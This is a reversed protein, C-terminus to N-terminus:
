RDSLRLSWLSGRALNVVWRQLLYILYSCAYHRKIFTYLVLPTLSQLSSRSILLCLYIKWVFSKASLICKINPFVYRHSLVNEIILCTLDLFLFWIASLVSSSLTSSAVVVPVGSISIQLLNSNAITYYNCHHVGKHKKVLKLYQADTTEYM